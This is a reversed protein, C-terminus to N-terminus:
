GLRLVRVQIGDGDMEESVFAFGCKELVRRSGRNHVAVRAFLPREALEDLLHTLARTAIGRGWHERGIWYGIQREGDRVFSLASGVVEGDVVVSRLVVEPDALIKEWHADFAARDRAAVAAMMTSERDRQQEFHIPLDEPRVARLRVDMTAMM